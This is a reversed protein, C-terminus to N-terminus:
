GSPVTIIPELSSSSAEASITAGCTIDVMSNGSPARNDSESSSPRGCVSGWRANFM